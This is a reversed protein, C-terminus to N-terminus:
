FNFIKRANKMHDHIHSYQFLGNRGSIKLNKFKNLYNLILNIKKDFDTELIPYAHPIKYILTDLINEKSFFGIDMLDYKVQSILNEQNRWIADTAQCPVEVILSTQNLPSMKSSRNKPEYVRTFSYKKDPFYMSGNQNVSKINLFFCILIINRFRISKSVELIHDPPPPNLNNLLISLPMTSIVNDVEFLQNDNIEICQIINNSHKLKTVRSKTRFNSKDCFNVMEDFISGIGFEPYYFSGDLHKTKVKKGFIFELIFTYISFGKLRNGSILTSLKKPNLGWLKQSYDLLFLKALKNGFNSVAFDYFNSPKNFKILSKFFIIIGEKLFSIPGLFLFLNFPSLPFDIFKNDRYIQSPVNIKHLKNGLLQKILITTEQDKNHLRHAGTDFYFDKYNLTQCNGGLSESSEFLTYDFNNKKAYYACSIGAPGGGIITIKNKNKMSM